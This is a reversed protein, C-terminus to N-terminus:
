CNNKFKKTLALLQERMFRCTSDMAEERPQFHLYDCIRSICEAPNKILDDSQIKLFPRSCTALFHNRSSVLQQTISICSDIPLRPNRESFARVIEEESEEIAIMYPSNWAVMLEQGALCLTQNMAGLLMRDSGFTKCHSAAWIKLLLVRRDFPLKETLWPEEFLCRCIYSLGIAEFDCDHKENMSRNFNGMPIGLTHLVGGLLHSSLGSPSLVAVMPKEVTPNAIDAAGLFARIREDQKSVDSRGEAQYVLWHKPVFIGTSDRKQFEGLHFDVHHKAVWHETDQFHSHLRQLMARTRIAYAHMRNVNYPQYAWDNVRKPLGKELEIHEGGLFLLQWDAPVAHLFHRVELPFDECFLADDELVLVSDIGDRLCDELVKRHSLYCGWAGAGEKWWGPVDVQNGDIAPFRLPPGFPWGAPLDYIFQRWRDLRRPLSIVVVRSFVNKLNALM